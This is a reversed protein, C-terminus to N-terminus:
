SGAATSLVRDYTALLAQSWWDLGANALIWARAQERQRSRVTPDLALVERIVEATARAGPATLRCSPVSRAIVAQGPINSAVVPIGVALAELVAFPM